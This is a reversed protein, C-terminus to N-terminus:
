PELRVKRSAVGVQGKFSSVNVTLVHEGPPFQSLEWRWNLPLYGREAEAFFQGDVFLLVEFQDEMLRPKDDEAVDVRVNVSQRVAPVADSESVDPFTMAVEPARAWAPPVLLDPRFRQRAEDGLPREPKQPRDEGRGLKYDRYTEQNNGYTIVTADPLTSYTILATFDDRGRLKVLEDADFGDWYETVTGASRPKWDVLTRYMPGNRIGLRILVRALAPLTYGVAGSDDFTPNRIDDVEGGSAAAPDHVSGDVTEIVFTYAEDPVVRGSDDRGDWSVQREMDSPGTSVPLTRILGGDPDYVLVKPAADTELKFRLLSSEGAAPNFTPADLRVDSVAGSADSFSTLLALLLASARFLNGTGQVVLFRRM